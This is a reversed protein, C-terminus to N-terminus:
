TVIVTTGIPALDSSWLWDIAPDPVRVCGHSAPDAIVPPGGHVAIGQNFYKPRYLSGNPGPDWANVQRFVSFTGPPTPTSAKGTTADIAVAGGNGDVVVLVQDALSVELHRGPGQTPEVKTAAALAAVTAPGAVGDRGLGHQKQFAMVAHATSGDYTGSFAPLFYGLGYLRLQLADVQPGSDGPRTPETPGGGAPATTTPAAITTPATTPPLTPGSTTSAAQDSGSAGTGSGCAVVAGGALVMCGAILAVLARM